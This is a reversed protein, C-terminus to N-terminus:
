ATELARSFPLESAQLGALEAFMAKCAEEDAPSTPDKIVARLAPEPNGSLASEVIWEQLPLQAAIHGAIPEAVPPM